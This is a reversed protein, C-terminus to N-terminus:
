ITKYDYCRKVYENEILQLETEEEDICAYECVLKKYDHDNKVQCDAVYYGYCSDIENGAEDTEIVCFERACGLFIEADIQPNSYYDKCYIITVYDGQCYGCASSVIWEKETVITLYDAVKDYDYRYNKMALKKLQFYRQLNIVIDEYDFHLQNYIDMNDLEENDFYELISDCTNIVRKYEEINLGYMRGHDFSVLFLTACYDGCKESFSDGDFYETFDSDCAPIERVIYRKM